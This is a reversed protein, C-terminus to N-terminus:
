PKNTVAREVPRRTLSLVLVFGIFMVIGGAILSSGIATRYISVIQTQQDTPLQGIAAMGRDLMASSDFSAPLDAIQKKLVFSMIGGSLAAGLSGGLSRVFSMTATATGLVAQPVANQVIVTANPMGIGMGAGLIAMSVLFLGISAGIHAFLALLVLGLCELGVGVSLLISIRRAGASFRGATVSTVLMMLVQPLMMAGSEEPTQHLVLQYYLPMFVLSGMMAFSMVGSAAVCTAYPIIRFLKLDIVPEAASREVRVLLAYSALAVVLLILMAETGSLLTSTNANFLLLLASTGICVLIAGAYDITHGSGRAVKPLSSLVLALAAAGVPLNIYFIWRWSAHSTIFGGLLPGAVSSIAFAGTVLGQYRGRERMPVISGVLTQSLTMLGGAGLGQLARFLILALMSQAAGCLMSAVVFLSISAVFFPKRGYMDSLKGYLPASITSTLMFATVAWTLHSLGGLDGSIVPLATSVISQDLAALIMALMLGAFVRRRQSLPIAQSAEAADPTPTSRASPSSM